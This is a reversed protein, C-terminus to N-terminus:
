KQNLWIPKTKYLIFFAYPISKMKFLGFGIKLLVPKKTRQFFIQWNFYIM